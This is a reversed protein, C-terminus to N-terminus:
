TALSAPKHHQTIINLGTNQITLVVPGRQQISGLEAKSVNHRQQNVSTGVDFVPICDTEEELGSKDIKVHIALSVTM